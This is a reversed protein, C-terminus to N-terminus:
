IYFIICVNYLIICVNYLIVYRAWRAKMICM